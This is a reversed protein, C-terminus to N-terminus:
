GGVEAFTTLGGRVQDNVRLIVLDLHGAGTLFDVTVVREVPSWAAYPDNSSLRARFGIMGTLRSVSPEFNFTDGLNLRNVAGIPRATIATFGTIPAASTTGFGQGSLPEVDLTVQVPLLGGNNYTSPLGSDAYVRVVTRKGAVLFVTNSSAADDVVLTQIAQIVEIGRISVTTPKRVHINVDATITACRNQATLRYVDDTDQAAAYALTVANTVDLGDPVDLDLAPGGGSIHRVNVSDANTVRWTLVVTATADVVVDASGNALFFHIEPVTGWFMNYPTLPPCPFVPYAEVKIYETSTVYGCQADAGAAGSQFRGFETDLIAGVWTAFERWQELAEENLFGVPGGRAWDPVTVRIETDTWQGAPVTVIRCPKGFGPIFVPMGLGPSESPMVLDIGPPQPEGFGSGRIVIEKGACARPPVIETIPDSYLYTFDDIPYWRAQGQRIINTVIGVFAETCAVKLWNCNDFPPREPPTWGFGGDEPLTATLSM